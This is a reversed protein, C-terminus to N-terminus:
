AIAVEDAKGELAVSEVGMKQLMKFVIKCVATVSTLHGPHPNTCTATWTKGLNGLM